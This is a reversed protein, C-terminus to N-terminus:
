GKPLYGREKLWDAVIRRLAESRSPQDPEAAAFADIGTITERDARFRLLESDVSPRGRGRKIETSM